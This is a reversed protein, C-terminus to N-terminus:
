SEPTPWVIQLLDFGFVMKMFVMIAFSAALLAVGMIGNIIRSKATKIKDTDGGATIWDLAAWILYILLLIGGLILATKWLRAILPALPSTIEDANGETPHIVPNTIALKQILNNFIIFNM